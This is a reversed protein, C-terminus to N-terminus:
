RTNKWMCTRTRLLQDHKSWIASRRLYGSDVKELGFESSTRSDQKVQRGTSFVNCKNNEKHWHRFVESNCCAFFVTVKTSLVCHIAENHPFDTLTEWLCAPVIWPFVCLCMCVSSSSLTAHLLHTTCTDSM